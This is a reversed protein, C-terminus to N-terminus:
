NGWTATMHQTFQPIFHELEIVGAARASHPATRDLDDVRNIFTVEGNLTTKETLFSIM